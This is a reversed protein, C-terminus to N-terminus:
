FGRRCADVWVERFHKGLYLDAFALRIDGGCFTCSRELGSNTLYSVLLSFVGKSKNTIHLRDYQREVFIDVDKRSKTYLRSGLYHGGPCACFCM